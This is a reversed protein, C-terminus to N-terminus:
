IPSLESNGAAVPKVIKCKISWPKMLGAQTALEYNM